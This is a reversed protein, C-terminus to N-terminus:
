LNASALKVSAQGRARHFEAWMRAAGHCAAGHKAGSRCTSEAREGRDKGGLDVGALDVGDLIAGRLTDFTAARLNLAGALKTNKLSAGSLDKGGLDVGALDVGDLIACAAWIAQAQLRNM